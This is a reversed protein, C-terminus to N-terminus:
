SRSLSVDLCIEPYRAMLKAASPHTCWLRLSLDTAAHGRSVKLNATAAEAEEIEDLRDHEILFFVFGDETLSLSRTTGNLLRV